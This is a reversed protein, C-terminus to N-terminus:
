ACSENERRWKAYQLCDFVSPPFPRITGLISGQFMRSFTRPILGQFTRLISEQFTRSITGPISRQFTRSFALIRGRSRAEIWVDRCPRSFSSRDLRCLCSIKTANPTGYHIPLPALTNTEDGSMWNKARARSCQRVIPRLARAFCQIDPSSVVLTYSTLQYKAKRM